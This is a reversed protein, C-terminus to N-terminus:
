PQVVEHSVGKRTLRSSVKMAQKKNKYGGVLVQHEIEKEDGVSFLYPSYRKRRFKLVSEYADVENKFTGMSIAYPLKQVFARAAHKEKMLKKAFYYADIRSRFRDIVVRFLIGKGSVFSKVLYASFGTRRLRNAYDMAKNWNKFSATEVVYPYKKHVKETKGKRFIEQTIKWKENKKEFNIDKTGYSILNDSSYLQQFSAVVMDKERRLHLNKVDVRINDDQKTFSSKYKKWGELDIQKGSYNRSLFDDSYYSFHKDMDAKEWSQRWDGLVELIDDAAAINEGPLPVVAQVPSTKQALDTDIGQRINRWQKSQERLIQSTERAGTKDIEEEWNDFSLVAGVELGNINNHLFRDKNLKWLAVVARYFNYKQPRTKRVVRSLTDGAVIKYTPLNSLTTKKVLTEPQEKKTEPVNVTKKAETKVIKVKPKIAAPKKVAKVPPLEAKKVERAMTQPKVITEPIKKEKKKVQPPSLAISMNKKFDAVLSYKELITGGELTARIILDFSPYFLPKLSVIKIVQQDHSVNEVPTLIRLDDVINPRKVGLRLYDQPSGIYAELGKKGNNNVLVEAYFKEGFASKVKIRKLSFADAKYPLFLFAIFIIIIIFTKKISVM